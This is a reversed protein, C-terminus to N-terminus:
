IDIHTYIKQVGYSCAYQMDIYTLGLVGMAADDRSMFFRFVLSKIWSRATAISDYNAQICDLYAFVVM